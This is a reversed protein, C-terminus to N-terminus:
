DNAYGVDLVQIDINGILQMISGMDSAGLGDALSATNTLVHVASYRVPLTADLDVWKGDILGQTWMHWGFIGKEGMFAEAYVLGMAVRAPIHQARLLAALLVGHESCDGTQTRATESASAFVTGMEKKSIRTNVVKRLAEAKTMADTQNRAAKSLKTVLADDFDVMTSPRTFEENTKDAESAALEDNIDITLIASKHDDSMQVRQSGASPLDPLKSQRAVLKLKATSAKMSHEIPKDPKIFTKALVEPGGGAVEQMAQARTATRTVIKGMGTPLEQYVMDGGADYYELAEIPMIDTTTKWVQVQSKKGGFEYETEGAAISKTLVPKLGNQADIMSVAIEKAGAKRQEKAYRDARYPTMWDGKPVNM